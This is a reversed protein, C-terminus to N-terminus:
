KVNKDEGFLNQVTIRIMINTNSRVTLIGSEFEYGEGFIIPYSATAENFLTVNKFKITLTNSVDFDVRVLRFSFPIPIEYDTNANIKQNPTLPIILWLNKGIFRFEFLGAQFTKL